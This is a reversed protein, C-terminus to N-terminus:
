KLEPGDSAGRLKRGAGNREEPDRGIFEVRKTRAAITSPVARPELWALACHLLLMPLQLVVLVADTETPARTLSPIVVAVV